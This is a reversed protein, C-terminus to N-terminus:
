YLINDRFFGCNDQCIRMGTLFWDQTALKTKSGSDQEQGLVRHDSDLAEDSYKYARCIVLDEKMAKWQVTLSRMHIM